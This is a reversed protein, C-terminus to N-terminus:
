LGAFKKERMPSLYNLVANEIKLGGGFQFTYGAESGTILANAEDLKGKIRELPLERLRELLNKMGESQWQGQKRLLLERITMLDKHGQRLYDLTEILGSIKKTSKGRNTKMAEKYDRLAKHQRKACEYLDELDMFQRRLDRIIDQRYLIEEPTQLPVLMVRRVKEQILDEQKAMTKFIIDLNLDKVMDRPFAYSRKGELSSDRYLLFSDM